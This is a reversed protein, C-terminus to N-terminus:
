SDNVFVREFLIKIPDEVNVEGDMNIEEDVNSYESEESECSEQEDNYDNNDQDNPELINDEDTDNSSTGNESHNDTADSNIVQIDTQETTIALSLDCTNHFSTGCTYLIADLFRKLKERDKNTLKKLSFLLRPKECESCFVTIGVNKARAASPCFPMTHKLKTTMRMKGT